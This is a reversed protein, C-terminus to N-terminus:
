SMCFRTQIPLNEFLIVTILLKAKLYQHYCIFTLIEKTCLNEEFVIREERVFLASM